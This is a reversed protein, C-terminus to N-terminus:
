FFVLVLAGSYVLINARFAAQFGGFLVLTTDGQLTKHKKQSREFVLNVSPGSHGVLVKPRKSQFFTSPLPLEGGKPPYNSTTLVPLLDSVYYAEWFTATTKTPNSFSCSFRPKQNEAEKRTRGKPELLSGWLRHKLEVSYTNKEDVKILSFFSGPYLVPFVMPKGPFYHIRHTKRSNKEIKIGKSDTRKAKFRWRFGPSTREWSIHPENMIMLIGQVNEHTGRPWVATVEGETATSSASPHKSELEGIEHCQVNQSCRPFRSTKFIQSAKLLGDRGGELALFCEFYM